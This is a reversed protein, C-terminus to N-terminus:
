TICGRGRLQKTKATLPGGGVRRADAIAELRMSMGVASGSGTIATLEHSYDTATVVQQSHLKASSARGSLRKTALIAFITGYRSGCYFVAKEAPGRTRTCGAVIPLTNPWRPVRGASQKRLM